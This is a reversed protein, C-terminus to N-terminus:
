FRIEVLRIITKKYLVDSNYMYLDDYISNSKSPLSSEEKNYAIVAGISVPIFFFIFKENGMKAMLLQAGWGIVEGILSGVFVTKFSKNQEGMIKGTLMCGLSSGIPAGICYLATYGIMNEIGLNTNDGSNSAKYLAYAVGLGFAAQGASAGLFETLIIQPKKSVTGAEKVSDAKVSNDDVFLPFPNKLEEMFKVKSTVLHIEHAFFLHFSILFLILTRHKNM